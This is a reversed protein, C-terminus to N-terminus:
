LGRFRLGLQLTCITNGSKLVDWMKWSNVVVM